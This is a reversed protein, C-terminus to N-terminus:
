TRPAILALLRHFTEIGITWFVSAGSVGAEIMGIGNAGFLRAIRQLSPAPGYTRGSQRAQGPGSAESYELAALMWRGTWQPAVRVHTSGGRFKGLESEAESFWKRLEGIEDGALEQMVRCFGRFFADVRRGSRKYERMLMALAPTVADSVSELEARVTEMLIDRTRPDELEAKISALFGRDSSTAFYGETLIREIRAKQRGEFEEYLLNVAAAVPALLAAPKSAAVLGGAAGVVRAAKSVRDPKPNKPVM